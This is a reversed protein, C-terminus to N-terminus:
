GIPDVPEFIHVPPCRMQYPSSARWDRVEEVLSRLTEVQIPVERVGPNEAKPMVADAHNCLVLMEDIKADPIM